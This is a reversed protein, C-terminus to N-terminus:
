AKPCARPRRTWIRNKLQCLGLADSWGSPPSTEFGANASLSPRFEMQGKTVWPGTCIGSGRPQTSSRHSDGGRGAPGGLVGIALGFRRGLGQRPQAWWSHKPPRAGGGGVGGGAWGAGTAAAARGWCCSGRAPPCGRPGAKRDGEAGETARLSRTQKRGASVEQTTLPGPGGGGQGATGRKGPSPTLCLHPQPAVGAPPPTGRGPRTYRTAHTSALQFRKKWSSRRHEVFGGGGECNSTQGSKLHTLQFM